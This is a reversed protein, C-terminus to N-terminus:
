AFNERLEVWNGEYDQIFINEWGKPNDYIHVKVDGPLESVLERRSGPGGTHLCIHNIGFADFAQLRPRPGQDFCHIEIDPGAGDRRYRRIRAGSTREFLNFCAEEEIYTERVFAYGLVGVWFKEFLEVDGTIWGVHDINFNNVIGSWQINWITMSIM